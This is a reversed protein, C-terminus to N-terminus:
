WDVDPRYRRTAARRTLEGATPGVGTGLSALAGHRQLNRAHGAGFGAVDPVERDPEKM